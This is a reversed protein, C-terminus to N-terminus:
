GKLFAALDSEDYLVPIEHDLAFGVEKIAGQSADWGPMAFLADCRRLLELDGDLWTSDPIGHAGGLGATNKHPCLAVAGYTWVVLAYREAERINCRVYFEGRPDRYRGAIYVVKLRKENEEM